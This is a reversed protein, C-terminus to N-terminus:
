LSSICITYAVLIFGIVLAFFYGFIISIVWNWSHKQLFTALWDGLLLIYCSILWYNLKFQHILPLTLTILTVVLLVYGLKKYANPTLLAKKMQQAGSKM